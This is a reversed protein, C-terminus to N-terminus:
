YPSVSPLHPTRLRQKKKTHYAFITDVQVILDVFVFRLMNIEGSVYPFNSLLSTRSSLPPALVIALRRSHYHLLNM